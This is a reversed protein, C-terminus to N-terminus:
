GHCAEQEKPQLDALSLPPLQALVKKVMAEHRRRTARNTPWGFKAAVAQHVEQARKMEAQMLPDDRLAAMTAAEAQQMEEKIEKPMEM